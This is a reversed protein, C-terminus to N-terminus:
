GKYFINCFAHCMIAKLNYNRQEYLLIFRLQEFQDSTYTSLDIIILLAKISFIQMQLYTIERQLLKPLKEKMCIFAFHVSHYSDSHGKTYLMKIIYRKRKFYCTDGVFVNLCWFVLKQYSINLISVFFVMFRFDIGIM